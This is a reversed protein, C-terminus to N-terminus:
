NKEKSFNKKTTTQIRRITKILSKKPAAQTQRATQLTQHKITLITKLKNTKELFAEALIM